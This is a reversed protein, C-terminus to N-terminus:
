PADSQLLPLLPGELVCDAARAASARGLDVSQRVFTPPRDGERKRSAVRMIEFACAIQQRNDRRRATQDCVPGVIGSPQALPEALAAGLSHDRGIRGAFM